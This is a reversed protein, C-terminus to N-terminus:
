RTPDGHATPYPGPIEVAPGIEDNMDDTPQTARDPMSSM